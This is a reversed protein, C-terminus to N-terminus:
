LLSINNMGKQFKVERSLMVIILLYFWLNDYTLIGIAFMRVLLILVPIWIGGRLVIKGISSKIAILFVSTGFLGIYYLSELYTNHTGKGLPQLITKLGNGFFLIKVDSFIKSVYAKWIDTRGTTISSMTATNDEEFRLIYSNISDYAFVYVALGGIAILFIFKVLKGAGQKLSLTFWCFILLVLSIIFSKSISMLGLISLIVLLFTYIKKPNSYMLVIIAALAIIIDLTYYNPNGQLGSFRMAYENEALKTINDLIFNDIIPFFSKSYALLSSLCVGLSFSIVSTDADIDEDKLCYLMLMGFSMSLITTLKGIGSFLIGYLAFLIIYLLRNDFRSCKFFMKLVVIFFIITVISMAEVNPKLITSFPLIFLLLPLCYKVSSMCFVILSTGAFVYFFVDNIARGLIIVSFLSCMKWVFNTDFNTHQRITEFASGKM